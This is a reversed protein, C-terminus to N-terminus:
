LLIGKKDLFPVTTHKFTCIDKILPQLDRFIANIKIFYFM